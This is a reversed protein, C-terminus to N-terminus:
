AKRYRVSVCVGLVALLAILYILNTNVSSAVCGGGGGLGGVDIGSSAGVQIQFTFSATGGKGDDVSLTVTHIVGPDDFVGTTPAVSYPATAVNNFEGALIGTTGINSVSGVLGVNDGDADAVDVRLDLMSLTSNHAVTIIDNPAVSFGSSTVTVTPIANMPFVVDFAALRAHSQGGITTFEGAVYLRNGAFHIAHVTADPAPNWSGVASGTLPDLMALRAYSQGGISTFQGGAFLVSDAPDTEWAWIRQDPNPDFPMVINSSTSDGMLDFGAAILRNETVGGSTWGAFMGSVYATYAIGHSTN